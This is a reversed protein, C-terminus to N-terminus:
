ALGAMAHRFLYVTVLGSAMFVAVAVLSRKSFRALGCIGHGSTCGNGIRTGAGVVLGACILWPTSVVANGARIDFVKFVAIAGLALGILFIWRWARDDRAEIAQNIIGSIGAIRRLCAFLLVASLGIMVGGIAASIPTFLTPM